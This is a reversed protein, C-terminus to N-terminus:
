ETVDPMPIGYFRSANGHYFKALDAPSKDVLIRDLTAVWDRMSKTKNCVPWDGGFM